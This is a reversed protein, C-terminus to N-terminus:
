TPKSISVADYPSVHETHTHTEGLIRSFQYIKTFRLLVMSNSTVEHAM